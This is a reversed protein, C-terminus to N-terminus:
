CPLAVLAFHLNQQGRLATPAARLHENQKTPSKVAECFLVFMKAFYRLHSVFQVRSYWSYIKMHYIAENRTKHTPLM